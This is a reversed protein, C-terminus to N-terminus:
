NILIKNRFYFNIEKENFSNVQDCYRFFFSESNAHLNYLYTEFWWNINDVMVIPSSFLRNNFYNTTNKWKDPDTNKCIDYVRPELKFSNKHINSFSLHETFFFSLLIVSFLLSKNKSLQNLILSFLILYICLIYINYGHTERINLIFYYVGM